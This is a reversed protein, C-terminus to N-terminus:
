PVYRLLGRIVNGSVGSTKGVLIIRLNKIETEKLHIHRLIQEPSFADYRCKDLIKTLFDDLVRELQVLMEAERHVEQLSELASVADGFSLIRQWGELPEDILRILLDATYTGGEHFFGSIKNADINARKLRLAARINEADIKNKVYHDIGDYPLKKSLAVLSNFLHADLIREIELMDRSQEWFSLCQPLLANLGYPLLGFDETEIALILDDTSISGLPTLLDWRKEGGLRQSIFSKLVVKVNHYDYPLRFLLILSSDPVFKEVEDYFGQLELDLVKDFSIDAESSSFWKAYSTEGLVKLTTQADESEIMRQFISRDLFRNEMAKLRAIAYVFTENRTM